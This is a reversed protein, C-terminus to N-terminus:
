PLQLAKNSVKSKKALAREQMFYRAGLVLELSCHWRHLGVDPTKPVNYINQSSHSSYSRRPGCPFGGHKLDSM